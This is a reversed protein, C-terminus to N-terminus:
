NSVVCVNLAIVSFDFRSHNIQSNRCLVFFQVYLRRERGFVNAQSPLVLYIGYLSTNVHQQAHRDTESKERLCM